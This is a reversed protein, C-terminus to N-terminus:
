VEDEDDEDEYFRIEQTKRNQDIIFSNILEVDVGSEDVLMKTVEGNSGTCYASVREANILDKEHYGFKNMLKEKENGTNNLSILNNIELMFFDSHTTLLVRIGSNILRAILKAMLVQKDPHLSLEPEDIILFDSPGAIHRVFVNILFLSKVSSATMYIPLNPENLGVDPTYVISNHKSSFAGGDLLQDAVDLVYRYTDKDDVFISSEKAISEFRNIYGINEQIPLSFKPTKEILEAYDVPRMKSRVLLDMMKASNHFMEIGTRESTVYFPLCGNSNFMVWFIHSKIHFKVQDIEIQSNSIKRNVRFILDGSDEHVEMHLKLDDIVDNDYVISYDRNEYKEVDIRAQIKLKEFFDFPAGLNRAMDKSIESEANEIFKTLNKRIAKRSIKASNNATLETLIDEEVGFQMRAAFEKLIVFISYNLLSKNSNNPGCIITLDKLEIEASKLNGLNQFTIKM